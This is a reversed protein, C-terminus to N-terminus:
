HSSVQTIYKNELIVSDRLNGYVNLPEDLDIHHSVEGGYKVRSLRVKGSVPIEGLYMGKVMMGDLAWNMSM